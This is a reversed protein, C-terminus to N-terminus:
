PTRRPRQELRRRLPVSPRRHRDRAPDPVQQVYRRGVQREIMRMGTQDDPPRELRRHLLRQPAQERGAVDEVVDTRVDAEERQEPRPEDPRLSADHRELRDRPARPRDRAVDLEVVERVRLDAGLRDARVVTARAQEDDALRAPRMQLRRAPVGVHTVLDVDLPRAPCGRRLPRM